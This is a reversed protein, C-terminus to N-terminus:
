HIIEIWVPTVIIRVRFNAWIYTRYIGFDWFYNSKITKSAACIAASSLAVFLPTFTFHLLIRGVCSNHHIAYLSGALLGVDDDVDTRNQARVRHVGWHLLRNIPWGIRCLHRERRNNERLNYKKGRQDGSTRHDCRTFIVSLAFHFTTSPDSTCAEPLYYIVRTLEIDYFIKPVKIESRSVPIHKHTHAPPLEGSPRYTRQMTQQRAWPTTQFILDLQPALRSELIENFVAPFLWVSSM